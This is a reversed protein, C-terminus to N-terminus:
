WEEDGSLVLVSTRVGELTASFVDVIAGSAATAIKPGTM